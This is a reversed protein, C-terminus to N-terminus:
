GRPVVLRLRRVIRAHVAPTAGVTPLHGDLDRFPFVPLGRWDTFRCGAEQLLLGPAAIDWVRGQEQVNADLRGCAVDVLQVVTCGFTRVRAGDRQLAAVFGLDEQGRHWQAGAIAGDDWRARPTSLPAGNRRAGLGAAASYLAAEPECWMAAVVPRRRWLLAVAVAWHPLGNAFNSTGDIPDVVWVYDRELGRARTEEGLLGAAPLVRHLRAALLRECRLDVATVFDGVGKRRAVAKGARVAAVATRAAARVAAAAAREIRSLLAAGPGDAAADV